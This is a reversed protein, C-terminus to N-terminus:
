RKLIKEKIAIILHPAPQYQSLSKKVLYPIDIQEFDDTETTNEKLSEGEKQYESQLDPHFKEINTMLNFDQPHILNRKCIYPINIFYHL